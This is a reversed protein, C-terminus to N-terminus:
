VGSVVVVFQSYLVVGDAVWVVCAVDDLESWVHDFFEEFGVVEGFDDSCVLADHVSELSECSSIEDSNERRCVVASAMLVCPGNKADRPRVLNCGLQDVRFHSM